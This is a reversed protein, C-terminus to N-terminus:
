SEGFLWGVSVKLAKAIEQAEYDMVDRNRNEIKSISTQTIQVGLRALKGSLDDQSVPPSMAQRALRVRAGIVNKYRSQRTKKV